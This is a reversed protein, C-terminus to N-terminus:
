RAESGPTLFVNKSIMRKLEAQRQALLRLAEPQLAEVDYVGHQEAYERLAVAASSIYQEASVTYPSSPRQPIHPAQEILLRGIKQGSFYEDPEDYFPEDWLAKVPSIIGNTRFVEEAVEASTYLYLAVDWALDIEDSYKSIGMMTGQAVSVRRGGREWAPLPMLKVKGSLRPNEVKWIGITADTVISGIVIGNLRERHGAATDPSVQISTREPGAIWTTITALAHANRENAFVPDDNEDFILGGNQLLLMTLASTDADSLALLYRDPRGDGDRDAMLPRLVRFYDEWTEIESVDIGAEEVLDSRYALVVPHVDHPLGFIRGRSIYPAFSAENFQEYVGEAHLRDTMDYFGVQDLPGLFAKPSVISSAELLDAVPTGSLFGSLMRREFAALHILQMDVRKEPYQRNWEAIKPEYAEYHRIRITWFPLGAQRSERAPKLVVLASTVLALLVIVLTGASFPWRVKLSRHGGEPPGHSSDGLVEV